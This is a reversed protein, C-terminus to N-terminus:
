CLAEKKKNSYLATYCKNIRILRNYFDQKFKESCILRGMKGTDKIGSIRCDGGCFYILDCNKCPETFEFQYVTYFAKLKDLIKPLPDLCINGAELDSDFCIKVSGDWFVGLSKGIGCSPRRWNPKLATADLKDFYSPEIYTDCIKNIADKYKKDEISSLKNINRGKLLKPTIKVNINDNIDNKLNIYFNEFHKDFEDLFELLPTMAVFIKLNTKGLCKLFDISQKFTGKGRISVIM